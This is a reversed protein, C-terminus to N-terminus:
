YTHIVLESDKLECISAYYAGYNEPNRMRERFRKPIAYILPLHASVHANSSLHHHANMLPFRKDLIWVTATDDKDRIVRGFAQNMKRIVWSQYSHFNENEVDSKHPYPIRPIILHKFKVSPMDIGAWGSYLILTNAQGKLYRQITKDAKEFPKQVIAQPLRLSLELADAKSPVLCLTAQNCHKLAAQTLDLDTKAPHKHHDYGAQHFEQAETGTLPKVQVFNLAGFALEKTEAYKDKYLHPHTFEASHHSYSDKAYSVLRFFDNKGQETDDNLWLTGSLYLVQHEQYLRSIIKSPNKFYISWTGNAEVGLKFYTPEKDIHAKLVNLNALMNILQHYNANQSKLLKQCQQILVDITAQNFQQPQHALLEFDQPTIHANFRLKAMGYIQDAEDVIIHKYPLQLYQHNTWADNLIAMHTTLIVKAGALNDDQLDYHHQKEKHPSQGDLCIEHTQLHPYEDQYREIVDEVFEGEVVDLGFKACKSLSIRASLPYFRKVQGTLELDPYQLHKDYTQAILNNSPIAIVCTGDCEKAYCYSLYTKGIGTSGQGLFPLNGHPSTMAEYFSQQLEDRFGM